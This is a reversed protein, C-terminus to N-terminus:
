GIAVLADKFLGILKINRSVRIRVESEAEAYVEAQACVQGSQFALYRHVTQCSM